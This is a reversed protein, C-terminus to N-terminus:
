VVGNEQDINKEVLACSHKSDPIVDVSGDGAGDSPSFGENAKFAAVFNIASGAAVSVLASGPSGRIDTLYYRAPSKLNADAVLGLGDAVRTHLM